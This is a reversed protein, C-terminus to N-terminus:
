LLGAGLALIGIITLILLAALAMGVAKELREWDSQEADSEKQKRLRRVGVRFGESLDASASAGYLILILTLVLIIEGGGLNFLAFCAKM